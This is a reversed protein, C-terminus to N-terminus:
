PTEGKGARSQRENQREMELIRNRLDDAQASMEEVQKKLRQFDKMLEPLKQEAAITRMVEKHPRAPMGSVFSRAPIDKAVLGRAAVISGAGVTLHGAIGTQGGMTVRNELVSSGALGSMAAILCQPGLQCNHGVQVLNDIKTGSGIITVGTTARDVTTNAGIEVDDEVIVTGIHEVKRHGAATTVFGFGDAGLVAGPHIICNRGVQVRERIVVNPYLVTNDGIVVDEGIYVGPYVVVNAGIRSRAGVYAHAQISVDRGLVVDEGVVASEHVGLPILVSPAFAELLAAWAMRPNAVRIVPKGIDPFDTPVVLASAKCTRATDLHKSDAAFSLDGPVADALAALGKIELDAGGLLEGDILRAIDSLRDM